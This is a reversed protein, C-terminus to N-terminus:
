PDFVVRIGLRFRAIISDVEDQSRPYSDFSVRSKFYDRYNQPNWMWFITRKDIGEMSAFRVTKKTYHTQPQYIHRDDLERERFFTRFLESTECAHDLTRNTDAGYRVSYERRLLKLGAGHCETATLTELRSEVDHWAVITDKAVYTKNAVLVFNACASLCYDYLVVLAAKERLINSLLMSERPYGGPSRMVFYGREKLDHFISLDLGLEISGDFCLVTREDSLKVTSPFYRCYDITNKVECLATRKDSSEIGSPFYRCYDIAHGVEDSEARAEEALPIILIVLGFFFSITSATRRAPTRHAGRKSHSHLLAKRHAYTSTSKQTMDEQAVDSSKM